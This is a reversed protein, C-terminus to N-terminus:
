LNLAQFDDDSRHICNECESCDPGTRYPSEKIMEIAPKIPQAIQISQSIIILIVIIDM